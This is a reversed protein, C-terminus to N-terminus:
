FLGGDVGIVQGTIYDADGSSLFLILNAIDCTKGFRKLSIRHLINSKVDQPLKETLGTEIFGPAIANVLINRSGYEAAISKTLAIVGAKSAAYNAQGINGTIGVISSINIIYSQNQKIMKKIAQQACFFSGKLNINLVTDWDSEKLRIVLGDRTIGANNVLLDLNKNECSDIIKFVSKFGNEILSINSIDVQFYNIKKNILNKVQDSDADFIDFVFVNDGRTKLSNVIELGIGSVGGTVISNKVHSM